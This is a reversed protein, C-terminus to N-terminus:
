AGPCNGRGGTCEVDGGAESEVIVEAPTVDVADAPDVEPCIIYNGERSKRARIEFQAEESIHGFSGNIWNPDLDDDELQELVHEEAAVAAELGCSANEESRPVTIPDATGQTPDMDDPFDCESDDDQHTDNPPDGSTTLCGGLAVAGSLAALLKRKQM